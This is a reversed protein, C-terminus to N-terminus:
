PLFQQQNTPDQPWAVQNGRQAFQTKRRCVKAFHGIRGCFNCTQGQATCMFPPHRL